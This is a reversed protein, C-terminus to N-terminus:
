ATEGKTMMDLASEAVERVGIAEACANGSPCERYSCPRCPLDQWLVRHRAEALPRWRMVDSGCAIVVSRTGTAAAIHSVGTDNCVLVSASAILAALTWFDTRGCLNLAPEQMASAVQAALEAEGRTGTLVVRWGARAMRDAVEAFRPAPWRRSPLQSGAHVVVHPVPSGLLAHADRFDQEVLPLDIALGQRPLGLHDTLALLREIESGSEPWPVFGEDVASGFGTTHLAGLNAVIDNTIDGAGHMQIALDFSRLRMRQIFDQTAGADPPPTEPLGPWGPFPEFADVSALRGALEGAWPLGILTVRAQPWACRIARLAPTACLMDGLMLARFVAVSRPAGRAATWGTAPPMPAVHMAHM